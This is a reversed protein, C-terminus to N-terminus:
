PHKFEMFSVLRAAVLATPWPIRPSVILRQEAMLPRHGNEELPTV